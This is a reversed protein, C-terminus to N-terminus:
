KDGFYKKAVAKQEVLNQPLTAYTHDFVDDVTTQIHQLMVDYEESIKAEIQEFMTKEKAEDWLGKATLFKKIRAIPDSKKAEEEEQKTRYVSPDDSTTHPGQRYTVFEVFIPGMGSRSYEIAELMADYCALLDNGDVRVRPMNVAIAKTSLDSVASELNTRTSIAYQNNNVCFVTQWKHISALNMAEYFEGEATGGDGIFTVAAAREKNQKLAYGIGAAQSYQAGITINIPIVRVGEDFVNGKENGNWYLMLQYPKVGRHLMLAGSRFAPVLWDKKTMALSTGLQLAEEGLNPALTLMKGSRQWTLMKKDLERSLNMYYYAEIVREDSLKQVYSPDIVRGENDIVRHLLEPIKNKVIIAM